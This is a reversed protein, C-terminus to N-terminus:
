SSRPLSSQAASPPVSSPWRMSICASRTRPVCAAVYAGVLAVSLGVIMLEALLMPRGTLAGAMRAVEAVFWAITGVGIWWRVRRERGRAGAWGRHVLVVAAAAAVLRIFPGALPSAVVLLVVASVALGIAASILAIRLTPTGRTLSGASLEMAAM